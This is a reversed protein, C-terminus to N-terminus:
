SLYDKTMLTPLGCPPVCGPSIMFRFFFCFHIMLSYILIDFIASFDFFAALGVSFIENLNSYEMFFLDAPKIIANKEKAVTIRPAWVEAPSHFAPYSLSENM